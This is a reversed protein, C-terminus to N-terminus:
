VHPSPNTLHLLEQTHQYEYIMLDKELQELRKIKGTHEYKWGDTLDEEYCIMWEALMFMSLTVKSIKELLIM